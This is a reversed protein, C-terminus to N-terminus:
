LPSGAPRAPLKGALKEGGIILLIYSNTLGASSFFARNPMIGESIEQHKENPIRTKFSLIRPLQREVRELLQQISEGRREVSCWSWEVISFYQLYFPIHYNRDIKQTVSYGEM